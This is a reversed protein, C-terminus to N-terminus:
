LEAHSAERRCAQHAPDADGAPAPPFVAGAVPRMAAMQDYLQKYKRASRACPFDVKMGSCQLSQWVRPTRYAELARDVAGSLGSLTREEFVFGTATGDALSRPGTDVVTERLGGVRSVIPVTGYRLAYLQTLGCPEFRAPALLMDAGALVQHALEEDYGIIVALRGAFRRALEVLTAEHAHDGRGLVVVQADRALIRPLADVLVDGMKQHTIRSVYALIPVGVHQDADQNIELGLRRRLAEKCIPKKVAVDGTGFHARIHRDTQPSWEEYDAGNLIGILDNARQRLLGELGFGFEPTLIEQAYAESVTAIRTAYRIGAKLYSVKGYYELGQADFTSAPLRLFSLADADFLGQFAMNHITFLTPPATAEQALLAAAPGTQWDNLHVVDPQWAVPGRVLALWAAVRSLLGFRLANDPWDDGKADQYIDGPRAYLSPCEILWVPAGSDPMRGSILATPGAGFPDGLEIREVPGALREVTGPYCPLLLRVDQGQRVLAKTLGGAYDALGGTKILPYAESTAFLIRQAV